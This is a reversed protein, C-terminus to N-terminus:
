LWVGQVMSNTFFEKLENFTFGNKNLYLCIDNIDWKERKPLKICKMFKKWMFVKYGMMLLEKSREKGAKDDDLLFYLDNFKDLKQQLEEPWKTGLVAVGNEIFLSDIIGELVIVPKDNNVGYYNYIAEERNELMNLYKNDSNFLTRAQFYYIQNEDNYFPIILRGKYRGEVAIFWRHWIHDSINRNRCMQVARNFYDVNKCKLIPVFIDTKDLVVVPKIEEQVIEVVPKQVEYESDTSRSIILVEKLFDRFIDPFYSKVWKTAPISAGCNFCYFMWPSKNKLIWGRKKKKSKKSDNCINCRFNYGAATPTSNNFYTNLIVRLYKDLVLQHNNLNLKM